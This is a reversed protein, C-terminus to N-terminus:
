KDMHMTCMQVSIFVCQVCPCRHQLVCGLTLVNDSKFQSGSEILLGPKGTELIFSGLVAPGFDSVSHFFVAGYATTTKDTVALYLEYSGLNSSIGQLLM